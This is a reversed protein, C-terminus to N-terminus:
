NNITKYTPKSDNVRSHIQDVSRRASEFAGAMWATLYTTHEGAFYVQGDPELLKPYFRERTAANYQAWGGKSLPNKHWALSYSHEFEADYQPHIKRGQELATKEREELSMNGLKEAKDGFNYYGVLVGKQTLYDTNPYFIQTIDMNTRSIGGYIQDDEEWFRRKFQLGIKGTKNYPIFDIARQKDQSFNNKIGSLVPLPITCICFDGKLQKAVGDTEYNVEVGSELNTISQVKAGMEILGPLKSELATSIKDMGGIPQFLTQQLNLDYDPLNSFSPDLYGSRILDILNHPDDTKGAHDGAGPYNVYGRRTTGKYLQDINLEGEVKLYELFKEKDEKTFPVDLADSDVSKHLLESVYGRVDNHLERIRIKKNALAGTNSDSYFYAGENLNNYIELPVGLIKCYHMTLEHHHPIRAAGANMYQGKDFRCLQSEGTMERENTGGRVTWVRGGTRDRAELMSVKYGLKQLEWGATMGALGAGLIIVHKNKGNGKLEFPFLPAKSIMGMSSLALYGLGSAKSAKEIFARRTLM